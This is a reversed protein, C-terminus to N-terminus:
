LFNVLSLESLSATLRYSAELQVQLTNIKVAVENVDVDEADSVTSLLLNKQNKHDIKLDNLRAKVGELKFRLSDIDQIARSVMGSLENFVSFFNDMMDNITDGPAGDISPPAPYAPDGPLYTDAIPPLNENKVYSLAVFVDRFSQDNALITYEVDSTENVRVFIDEVNGASLEPSYGVITDTVADTNGDDTTRDQLDAILDTTTITGSKWDTILTSLASDLLGKDTLPKTLTDAGALLYRDNERINVLDVMFTFLNEAMDRITQLEITSDASDHGVPVNEVTDPTLPDDYYIVDGKQHTSQQSLGIMADAFNGAQAQFEEIAKLMLNIRREANSINRIYSDISKLDARARKSIIIDAGLGSFKDTKKGSALQFSLTDFTSQQTKILEVQSLVQAINSIGTM